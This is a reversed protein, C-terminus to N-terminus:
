ILSELALHHTAIFFNHEHCRKPQISVFVCLNVTTYENLFFFQIQTIETNKKKKAKQKNTVQYGSSPIEEFDM